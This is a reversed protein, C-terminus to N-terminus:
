RPAPSPQVKSHTSSTWWIAALMAVAAGATAWEFTRWLTSRRRYRQNRFASLLTSEVNPPTQLERVSGAAAETVEALLCAEGMRQACKDCHAAHEIVAERLSVNLLEMRVFGHVVEDFERCTMGNM